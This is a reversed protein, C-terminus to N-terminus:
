VVLQGVRIVDDVHATITGDVRSDVTSSLVNGTAADRM